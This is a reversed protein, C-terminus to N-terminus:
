KSWYTQLLLQRGQERTLKKINKKLNASSITFKTLQHMPDPSRAEKYLTPAVHNLTLTM